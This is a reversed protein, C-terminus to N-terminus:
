AIAEEEEKKKNEIDVKRKELYLKMKIGGKQHNINEKEMKDLYKNLSKMENNKQNQNQLINKYVTTRSKNEDKQMDNIIWFYDERRLM